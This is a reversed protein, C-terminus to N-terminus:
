KRNKTATWWGTLGPIFYRSNMEDLADSQTEFEEPWWLDGILARRLHKETKLPEFDLDDKHKYGMAILELIATTKSKMIPWGGSKIARSQYVKHFRKWYKKHLYECAELIEKRNDCYDYWGAGSRGHVKVFLDDAAQYIVKLKRAHSKDEIHDWLWRPMLDETYVLLANNGYNRWINGYFKKKNKKIISKLQEKLM